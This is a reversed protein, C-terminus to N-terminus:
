LKNKVLHNVVYILSLPLTILLSVLWIRQSWLTFQARPMNAIFFGEFIGYALQSVMFPIIAAAEEPDDKFDYIFKVLLILGVGVGGSLAVLLFNSPDRTFVVGAGGLPTMIIHGDGGFFRLVNLHIWEHEGTVMLAVFMFKM